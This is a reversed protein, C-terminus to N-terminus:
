SRALPDPGYKNPGQTGKVFFLVIALYINYFPVWILWYHWAPRDLDQLRKIIQFAVALVGIGFICSDLVQFMEDDETVGSAGMGIGILLGIIVLGINIVVM